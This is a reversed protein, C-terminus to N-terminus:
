EFVRSVQGDHGGERSRERPFLDVPKRKDKRGAGGRAPRIQNRRVARVRRRLKGHVRCLSGHPSHCRGIRVSRAAVRRDVHQSNVAVDRHSPVTGGVSSQEPSSRPRSRVRAELDVLRRPNGPEIPIRSIDSSLCCGDRCLTLRRRNTPREAAASAVLM